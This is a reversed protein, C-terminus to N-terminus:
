KSSNQRSYDILIRADNVPHQQVTSINIYENTIYAIVQSLCIQGDKTAVVRLKLGDSISPKLTKIEALNGTEILKVLKDQENIKFYVESKILKQKNEALVYHSKRFFYMFIGILIGSIGAIFLFHPFTDTSKWEFAAYIALSIAGAIILILSLLISSKTKYVKNKDMNDLVHEISKNEEM